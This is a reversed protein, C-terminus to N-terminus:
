SSTTMNFGPKVAKVISELYSGARHEAELRTVNDLTLATLSTENMEVLIKSPTRNNECFLGLRRPYVDATITSGRGVNDCGLRVETESLLHRHRSKEVSVRLASM